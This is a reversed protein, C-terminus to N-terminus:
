ISELIDNTQGGPIFNSSGAPDLFLAGAQAASGGIALGTVLAALAVGAKLHKRCTM